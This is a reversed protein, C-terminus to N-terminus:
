CYAVHIRARVINEPPCYPKAGAALAATVFDELFFLNKDIQSCCFLVFLLSLYQYNLHLSLSLSLSLPIYFPNTLPITLSMFLFSSTLYFSALYLTLLLTFYLIILYLIDPSSLHLLLSLLHPHNSSTVDHWMVDRVDLDECSADVPLADAMISGKRVALLGLFESCRSMYYLNLHLANCHLANTCM